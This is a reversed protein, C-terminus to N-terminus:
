KLTTMAVAAISAPECKQSRPPFVSITSSCFSSWSRAVARPTLTTGSLPSAGPITFMRASCPMRRSSRGRATRM